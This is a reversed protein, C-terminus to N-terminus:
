LLTRCRAREATVDTPVAVGTETFRTVYWDTSNLYERAAVGTDGASVISM